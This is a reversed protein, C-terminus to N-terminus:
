SALAELRIPRGVVAVATVSEKAAPSAADLRSSLLRALHAPVREGHAASAVLQESFFPNGEGRSFVATSLRDLDTGDPHPLSAVLRRVADAGLPGL